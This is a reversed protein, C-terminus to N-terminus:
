KYYICTLHLRMLGYVLGAKNLSQTCLDRANRAREMSSLMRFCNPRIVSLMWLISLPDFADELDTRRELLKIGGTGGSSEGVRFGLGSKVGTGSGLWETENVVEM